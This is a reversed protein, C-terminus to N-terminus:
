RVGTLGDWGRGTIESATLLSTFLTGPLGHLNLGSGCLYLNGFKTRSPIVSHLVRGYEKRLGYAAGGPVNLYDRFTLPSASYVNRISGAIHPEYRWVLSLVRDALSRKMKRYLDGRNGTVTSEWRSFFAYPVPFMVTLGSAYKGSGDAHCTVAAFPIGGSAAVAPWDWPNDTFYMYRISNVFPVREPLLTVYVSFLSYGPSLKGAGGRHLSKVARGFGGDGEGAEQLLNVSDELMGLTCSPMISSVFVEGYIRRGGGEVYRVSTGECGFREATFGCVVEGGCDLIRGTLASALREAGSAFTCAGEINFHNIVAHSYFPAYEREGLYLPLSASFLRFMEPDGGALSELTDYASLSMLESIDATQGQRGSVPVKNGSIFAERSLGIERLATVYREAAEKGAASPFYSELAQLYADYGMPLRYERGALVYTEFADESLMRIDLSDLVGLARLYKRTLGDPGMGGFYHMGADFVVGDREFSQLTGGPRSFREVVCVKMGAAALLAAVSLGGTGAGIVVADYRDM